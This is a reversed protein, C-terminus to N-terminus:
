WATVLRVGYSTNSQTEFHFKAQTHAVLDPADAASYVPVMSDSEYNGVVALNIRDTIAWAINADVRGVFGYEGDEFALSSVNYVSPGISFTNRQRALMHAHSYGYGASGGVGVSISDALGFDLSLRLALDVQSESFDTQTLHTDTFGTGTVTRLNNYESEGSTYTLVIDSHVMDFLQRGVALAGTLERVGTTLNEVANCPTGPCGYPGFFVDAFGPPTGGTLPGYRFPTANAITYSDRADGEGDFYSGTLIVRWGSDLNKGIGLGYTLGDVNAALETSTLGGGFNFQMASNAHVPMDMATQGVYFGGFYPRASAAEEGDALAATPVVFAAAAALAMIKRM